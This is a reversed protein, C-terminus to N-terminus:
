QKYLYANSRLQKRLQLPSYGTRSKFFRSFNSLNPFGLSVSIERVSHHDGDLLLWIAETVIRNDIVKKVSIGWRCKCLRNLYSTTMHLGKSYFGADKEKRFNKELMRQLQELVPNIKPFLNKPNYTGNKTRLAESINYLILELRLKFIDCDPETSNIERLMLQLDTWCCEFVAKDLSIAQFQPFSPMLFNAGSFYKQVLIRDLLLRYGSCDAVEWLHVQGPFSIHVQRPEVPGMINNVTHQGKGSKLFIFEFSDEVKIYAEKGELKFYRLSQQLQRKKIEPRSVGSIENLKQKIINSANIKMLQRM